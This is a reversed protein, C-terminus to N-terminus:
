VRITKAIITPGPVIGADTTLALRVLVKYTGPRLKLRAPLAVRLKVTRAQYITTPGRQLYVQYYAAAAHPRWSFVRQKATLARPKTAARKPASASRRREPRVRSTASAAKQAGKANASGRAKSQRAQRKARRESQRAQRSGDAHGAGSSQNPQRATALPVPTTSFTPEDPGFFLDAASALLVVFVLLAFGGSLTAAIHSRVSRQPRKAVRPLARPSPEEGLEIPAAVEAQEQEALVPLLWPPDPLAIRARRALEGDVLVLEPSIPEEVPSTSEV